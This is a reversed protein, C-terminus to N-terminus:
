TSINQSRNGAPLINKIYFNLKKHRCHRVLIRIRMQKAGHIRIRMLTLLQIRMSVLESGCCQHWKFLFLPFTSPFNNRGMSASPSADRWPTVFLYRLYRRDQSVARTYSGLHPPHPPPPTAPDWVIIVSYLQVTDHLDLEM